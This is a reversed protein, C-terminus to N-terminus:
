SVRAKDQELQTYTWIGEEEGQARWPLVQSTKM